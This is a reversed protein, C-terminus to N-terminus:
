GTERTRLPGRWLSSAFISQGAVHHGSDGRITINVAIGECVCLSSAVATWEARCAMEKTGCGRFQNASGICPEPGDGDRDSGAAPLWALARRPVLSIIICGRDSGGQVGDRQHRLQVM